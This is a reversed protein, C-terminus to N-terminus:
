RTKFRNMEERCKAIFDSCSGEFALEPAMIDTKATWLSFRISWKKCFNADALREEVNNTFVLVGGNWKEFGVINNWHIFSGEILIGEDLIQVVSNGNLNRMLTRVISYTGGCGFGVIGIWGMIQSVTSDSKMVCIVSVSTLFITYIVQKILKAWRNNLITRM